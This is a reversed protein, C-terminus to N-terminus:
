PAPPAAAGTPFQTPLAASIGTALTDCEPHGNLVGAPTIMNDMGNQGGVGNPVNDYNLKWRVKWAIIHDTCSTDGSVGLGGVLDGKMNYLPLGGGFVNIGGVTKSTFPDESTGYKTVDGNLIAPDVQSSFQLGFLSGGPQALSYLNATSMAFEPLSFSNATVAKQASILRSGLWQDNRQEGSFAVACVVGDRNVVTGWVNNGFGSNLGHSGGKVSILAAKLAAYTPVDNCSAAPGSGQDPATPPNTPPNTPNTPPKTPNTPPNTPNTPNTQAFGAAAITCALVM